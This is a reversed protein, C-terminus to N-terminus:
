AEMVLLFRNDRIVRQVDDDRRCREYSFQDQFGDIVDKEEPTMNYYEKKGYTPPLWNRKKGVFINFREILREDKFEIHCTGKKYFTLNFYDFELNKMQGQRNYEELKQNLEDVDIKQKGTCLYNLV